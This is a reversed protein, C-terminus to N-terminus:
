RLTVLTLTKKLEEGRQGAKVKDYLVLLGTEKEPIIKNGGGEM